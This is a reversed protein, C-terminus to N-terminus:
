AVRHAAGTAVVPFVDPDRHGLSAFRRVISRRIAATQDATVLAIACGGFGAGTMRAGLAGADLAAEVAADLAPTSVEYDDRLSAHSATLLSGIEAHRRRRLLAVVDLVRGNESVVHRARRRLRPEFSAHDIDAVSADRLSRVGLLRSATECDGRRNAYEGQVLRHPSRVDIVLLALGAAVLDLPVHEVGLTRTDLFLGFGRRCCMAAMQDMVGVPVGVIEAEARRAALALVPRSIASGHLDALAIATACEVAASSALGSGVAVAGDLVLDFGGVDVGDGRLAWATGAIYGAWGGPHHRENVESLTFSAPEDVQLSWTRVLDDDRPRVAAAVHRDIALPLVFGENYDTHDGILNV